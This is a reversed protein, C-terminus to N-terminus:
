GEAAKISFNNLGVGAYINIENDNIMELLSLFTIVAHIRNKIERFLADFSISQDRTISERIFEKQEQISYNYHVVLHQPRNNRSDLSKLVNEFASFLKFMSLAELESDVLAKNAIKLIESKTNGRVQLTKRKLRLEQFDSILSKFKQYELLRTSLEFRPDIEEGDETYNPRPLLLKSKIKMLTAAMLIFESAVNINLEELTRIYELFDRTIKSIPIDMIDIEDREIFFLLLDFPGEFQGIKLHYSDQEVPM